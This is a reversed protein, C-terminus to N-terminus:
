ICKLEETKYAEIYPQFDRFLWILDDKGVIEIAKKAAESTEFLVSTDSTDTVSGWDIIEASNEWYLYYKFSSSDFKDIPASNVMAAAEALRRYIDMARAYDDRLQKDSFEFPTLTDRANDTYQCGGLGYIIGDYGPHELGTHKKSANLATKVQEDDLVADVAKGNIIIKTKM